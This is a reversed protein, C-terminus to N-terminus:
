QDEENDSGGDGGGGRGVVGADVGGRGVGGRGVVGGGVGGRGVVGRGVVGGGVVGAGVVGGGVVGGAGGRGVGAVRPIALQLQQQPLAAPEPLRYRPADALVRDPRIHTIHVHADSPVEAGAAMGPKYWGCITWGVNAAAYYTLIAQCVDRVELDDILDRVNVQLSMCLAM